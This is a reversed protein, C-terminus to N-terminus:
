QLHWTFVSYLYHHITDCHSHAYNKSLITFFLCCLRVFFQGSKSQVTLEKLATVIEYHKHCEWIVIYYMTFFLFHEISLLLIIKLFSIPLPPYLYYLLSFPSVPPFCFLSFFVFHLLFPPISPPLFPLFFSLSLSDCSISLITNIYESACQKIPYLACALLFTM